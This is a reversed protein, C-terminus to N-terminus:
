KNKTIEILNDESLLLIENEIQVKYIERKKNFVGIIIAEIQYIPVLSIIDGVKFKENAM